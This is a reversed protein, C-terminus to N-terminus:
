GETVASGGAVTINFELGLEGAVRRATEADEWDNVRISVSIEGFSDNSYPVEVELSETDCGAAALRDAIVTKLALSAQMSIYEDANVAESTGGQTGNQIEGIEAAASVAARIIVILLFAASVTRVTKGCSGEPVVFMILSFIMAAACVSVAFTQAASM